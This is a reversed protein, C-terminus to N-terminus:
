YSFTLSMGLNSLIYNANLGDNGGSTGGGFIDMNLANMVSQGFLDVTLNEIPKWRLMFNMSGRWTTNGREVSSTSTTNSAATETPELITTGASDVITTETVTTSAATETYTRTFSSTLNYGGIISFKDPVVQLNVSVPIVFTHVTTNDKNKGDYTTTTVETIEGVVDGGGLGIDAATDVATADPLAANADVAEAVVRDVSNEQTTSSLTIEPNYFLGSSVTLINAEDSAELVGGLEFAMGTVTTSQPATVTQTYSFTSNDAAGDAQSLSISLNGANNSNSITQGFEFSARTRATLIDSLGIKPDVRGQIGYDFTGNEANEIDTALVGATQIARAAAMDANGTEGATLLHDAAELTGQDLDTVGTTYTLTSEDDEVGGGVGGAVYNDTISVTQPINGLLGGSQTGISLSATIPMSIEGLSFPLQGTLMLDNDASSVGAKAKGEEDFGFVMTKSSTQNTATYVPDPDAGEEFSYTYSGGVKRTQNNSNFYLSAGMFGLDIGAGIRYSDDLVYDTYSFTETTTSDEQDDVDADLVIVQESDYTMAPTTPWGTLGGTTFKEFGGVVGSQMGLIPMLYGLQFAVNGTTTSGNDYLGILNNTSFPNISAVPDNIGTGENARAWSEYNGYATYFTVGEFNSLEAPSTLVVDVADYQLGNTVARLMSGPINWNTGDYPNFWTTEQAFLGMGAVATILILFLLKKM